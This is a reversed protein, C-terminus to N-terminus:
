YELLYRVRDARARRRVRLVPKGGADATLGERVLVPTGPRIGLLEADEPSAAEAAFSRWVYRLGGEVRDLLLGYVGDTERWRRTLGALLREPGWASSCVWAEGDIELASDVRRLRGRPYRLDRRVAADETLASSLLVDRYSRGLEHMQREIGSAFGDRSLPISVALPAPRHTVYTGSGQRAQLFGERALEEVARRVTLRHVDLEEALRTESPLREGPAYEGSVLRGHLTDRVQRYLPAAAADTM